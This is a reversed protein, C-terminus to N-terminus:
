RSTLEFNFTTTGGANIEATLQSNVNYKAPIRERAPAPAESGPPGSPVNAIAGASFVRVTYKGPPLGKDVPVSYQGNAILAGSLLGNSVGTPVFEITGSDLPQGDLTVSGSVPQLNLPNGPRCAGCPPLLLLMVIFLLTRPSM